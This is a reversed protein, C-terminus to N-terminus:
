CTSAVVICHTGNIQGYPTGDEATLYERELDAPAHHSIIRFGRDGLFGEIAGEEIGFTWGEGAKSVREYIEKEGYFRNERRLVSQYIYDFAVTSGGAASGRIFALTRDVADSTLYMSVGEWLFLTKQNSQYGAPSLVDGLSQRNFDIPVFILEAPLDVRKRKLIEIKPSQTTQIDLEFIRTGANKMRFRLARTDMGAGLLVIQSAHNALADMFVRDLLKTRALVYEYIGPPAIRRIFFRRLSPVHLIVKAFAPLFVEAMSDPGRFREDSEWAACARSFCTYGATNSAKREITRKTM